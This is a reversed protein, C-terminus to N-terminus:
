EEENKILNLYDEKRIVYVDDVYYYAAPLKIIYTDWKKNFVNMRKVQREWWNIDGDFVGLTLYEEGGTATYEVEIKVWNLTDTLLKNSQYLVGNPCKLYEKSTAGHKRFVIELEADSTLCFTFRDNAYRSKEALSVYMGIYYTEGKKLPYKLQTQVNELYKDNSFTVFGIYGDGSRPEQYGFTNEPVNAKGDSYFQYENNCRHFYDPSQLVIGPAWSWHTAYKLGDISIPCRTFYEFSPNNVYNISDMESKYSFPIVEAKQSAVQISVFVFLIIFLNKRM